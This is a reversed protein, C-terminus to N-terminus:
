VTQSRLEARLRTTAERDVHLGEPDAAPDGLVVVGYDRAAGAVSVYEDRVDALVRDIDRDLPDGWGGSGNTLLRIISGAAAGLVMPPVFRGSLDAQQTAPDILGSMPTAEAYAADDLALPVHDRRRALESTGGDWCWAAGLTGVRGGMVGGTGAATRVHFQQLRHRGANTWRVDHVSAAGGRHTGPGGTDPVYEQRLVVFPSRAERVEISARLVNNFWTQEASDGDGHRTAGWPGGYGGSSSESWPTGDPLEGDARGVTPNGYHFTVGDPGLVPNLAAVTANILSLVPEFYFQSCHPPQANFFADPPVVIDVDRMTGSTVPEFPDLLLKLAVTLGTKIDPWCCNVASRTAPSSDRLDVEMRRGVKIIRVRAVYEPSDPLGDSDLWDEGDYVGDPLRELADGMTEASADCAYRIAGVFADIGYKAISEQVLQDGLELSQNITRLDPLMLHPFRTNAHILASASRVLSGAAFLLMPPLRLGDQWVNQKTSEFGGVAIGGMDQMHARITVFAVISDEWFVPRILCVDNLHTGVRFADNVMLVDGPALQDIGHEEVAVRVADPISGYFLPLTESVAAMPYGLEAPGSLTGSLDAADRLIPSFANTVVRACMHQVVYRFRNALVTATFRDGHYRAFFEDNDLDALGAARLHSRGPAQATM